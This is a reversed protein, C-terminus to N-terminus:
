PRNWIPRPRYPRVRLSSVGYAQIWDIAGDRLAAISAAPVRQARMQSSVTMARNEGNSIFVYRSLDNEVAEMPRRVSQPTQGCVMPAVLACSLAAFGATTSDKIGRIKMVISARALHSVFAGEACKCCAM